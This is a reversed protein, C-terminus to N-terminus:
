IPLQCNWCPISDKRIYMNPDFPKGDPMIPKQCACHPQPAPQPCRPGPKPFTRTDKVAVYQSGQELGPSTNVVAGIQSANANPVVTTASAPKLVELLKNLDPLVKPSPESAAPASASGSAAPAPASGSAAPAPASGSGSASVPASGSGSESGSASVPFKTSKWKAFIPEYKSVFSNMPHKPDKGITILNENMAVFFEDFTLGLKMSTGKPNNQNIVSDFQTKESLAADYVKQPFTDDIANLDKIGAQQLREFIRLMWSKDLADMDNAIMQALQQKDTMQIDAFGESSYYYHGYVIYFIMLLVLTIIISETPKGSRYTVIGVIFIMLMSLIIPWKMRISQTLFQSRNITM